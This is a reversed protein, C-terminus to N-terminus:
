ETVLKYTAHRGNPTLNIINHGQQRLEHIRAALRTIGLAEWAQQPTLQAGEKLLSLVKHNQSQSM